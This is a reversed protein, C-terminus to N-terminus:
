FPGHLYRALFINTQIGTDRNSCPQPLPPPFSSSSSPENLESNVAFRHIPHVCPRVSAPRSRARPPFLSVAWCCNRVRDTGPGSRTRCAVRALPVLTLPMNITLFDDTHAAPTIQRPSHCARSRRSQPALGVSLATATRCPLRHSKQNTETTWLRLERWRMETNTTPSSWTFTQV